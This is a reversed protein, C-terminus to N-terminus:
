KCYEFSYGKTALLKGKCCKVIHSSDLFLEKAASTVSDYKKNNTKCFIPVWTKECKTGTKSKSLNERHKKSKPVGVLSERLRKLAFDSPRKGKHALSLRKKSEETHRPGSNSKGGSCINALKCDLDKFTSILFEEHDLADQEDVFICLIESKFGGAKNAINHWYNNRNQKQLHRKGQGKGIYFICNTDLRYHAYTYFNAM